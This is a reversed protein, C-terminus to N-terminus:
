VPTFAHDGVPISAAGLSEALAIQAARNSPDIALARRWADAAEQKQGAARYAYGLQVYTPSHRPRLRLSEQYSAIADAARGMRLHLTGLNHHASPDSPARRALEELAPLAEGPPATEFLFECQARLPELDGPRASDAAEQLYRSATAIDGRARASQALLLQGTGRLGEDAWLQRGVADLESLKQQQRLAEGLGQWAARYGPLEALVARWEAEALDYRQLETYVIALNHRAKHGLLGRDISTFHRPGRHTLLEQYSRAAEELRGFHHHLMGERFRLEPDDPYHARGERCVRWAEDHRELNSLSSVLLAYLKRVHSEDVTSAALSRRLAAVAQEHNGADAHTMGVNFLAFPHEPHDGLELELLHLDRMLKRQKGEPTHDAGSHVVFLDTWAVEGGSARIAPLIQEHIRGTFRLYPLNRFVKVHDVVTVEQDDEGPAGPCHVQVVYGLLSAEAPRRVLERLARGNEASITDDSDMWFVWEGRAYGLSENRARAFDDCWPFHHVRAGHRRAIDPTSDRSGTDVVVMEDVWPAISELCADLTGQNDRVIMCLSLGITRQVLRLGGGPAVEIALSLQPASPSATGKLSGSGVSGGAEAPVTVTSGEGPPVETLQADAERRAASMWKDRFLQENASLLGGFDMGSAQFTASGFHHVFADRAHVLRYGARRARLCYDDDEFNGIGFREDLLGIREIVEKRVLLCFGVLRDTDSRLHDNRRGWQWAFGDLSALDRYGAPVQQSGSVCNSSPGVLGVFPDSALAELQRRLWGTTVLTDNNLLLIQRGQAARIGQNAAAPFGRNQPNEILRVDGCSRLYPLTGDTSGNDVLVLEYPEDSLFRVSELCPRTCALLNHTVVVISTLGWQPVPIPRASMVWAEAHFEEAEDPPLGALRLSRCNVSGPRGARAWQTHGLGPVVRCRELEFGARYLLKELERRTFFRLARNDGASAEGPWRGELLMAVRPHYRLNEAALVLTGGDALCRRAQRLLELPRPARALADSLLVCDFSGSALSPQTLQGDALLVRDLHQMAEAIAAEDCDLGIVEIRRRTKLAAGLKGNGCGLHLVRRAVAPVLSLLERGLEDSGRPGQVPFGDDGTRSSAGLRQSEASIVMPCIELLLNL